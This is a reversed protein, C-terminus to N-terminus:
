CQNVRIILLGDTSVDVSIILKFLQPVVVMFGFIRWVKLKHQMALAPEINGSAEYISFAGPFKGRAPHIGEIM